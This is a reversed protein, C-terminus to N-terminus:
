DPLSPRPADPTSTMNFVAESMLYGSEFGAPGANFHGLDLSLLPGSRPGRSRAALLVKQTLMGPSIMM